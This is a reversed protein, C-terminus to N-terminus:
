TVKVQVQLQSGAQFFFLETFDAFRRLRVIRVDRCAQPVPCRPSSQLPQLRAPATDSTTLVPSDVRERESGAGPPVNFTAPQNWRHRVMWLTGLATAATAPLGPSACRREWSTPPAPSRRHRPDPCPRSARAGKM